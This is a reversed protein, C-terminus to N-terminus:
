MYMCIAGTVIIFTTSTLNGFGENGNFNVYNLQTASLKGISLALKM